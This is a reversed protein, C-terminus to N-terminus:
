QLCDTPASVKRFRLFGGVLHNTQILPPKELQSTIAKSLVLETDASGIHSKNVTNDIFGRDCFVGPILDTCDIFRGNLTSLVVGKFDSQCATVRMMFCFLFDPQVDPIM